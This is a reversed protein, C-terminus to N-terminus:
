GGDAGELYRSEWAPEDGLSYLCATEGPLLLGGCRACELDAHPADAMRETEEITVVEETKATGDAKKGIVIKSIGKNVYRGQKM